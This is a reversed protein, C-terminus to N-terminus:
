FFNILSPDVQTKQMGKVFLKTIIITILFGILLILVAEGINILADIWINWYKDM